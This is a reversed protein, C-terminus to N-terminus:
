RVYAWYRGGTSLMRVSEWSEERRIKAVARMAQEKSTWGAPVTGYEGNWLEYEQGGIMRSRPPRKLTKAKDKIEDMMWDLIEGAVLKKVTASLFGSPSVSSRFEKRWCRDGYPIILTSIGKLAANRDFKGTAMKKAYTEILPRTKARYISGDNIIYLALQDAVYEDTSSM